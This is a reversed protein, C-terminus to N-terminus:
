PLYTYRKGAVPITMLDTTFAIDRALQLERVLLQKMKRFESVVIKRVTDKSPPTWSTRFGLVLHQATFTSGLRLSLCNDAIFYVWRRNLERELAATILPLRERTARLEELEARAWAEVPPQRAKAEASATSAAKCEREFLQHYTEGPFKPDAPAAPTAKARKCSTIHRKFTSTSVSFWEGCALCVAAHQTKLHKRFCAWAPAVNREFEKAHEPWRKFLADGEAKSPKGFFNGTRPDPHGDLHAAEEEKKTKKKQQAADGAAAGSRKGKAM